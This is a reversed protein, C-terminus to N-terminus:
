CLHDSVWHARTRAALAKLKGLHERNLPDTNGIGMSVGHLAVPYREVIQDLIYLPRGCTDMYNESLVEFWDIKPFTSLIHDYHDTRLGIGIGLDRFSWRKKIM